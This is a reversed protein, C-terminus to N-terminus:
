RAVRVFWFEAGCAECRHESKIETDTALVRGIPTVRLSQCSPCRREPTESLTPEPSPM